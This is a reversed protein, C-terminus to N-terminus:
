DKEYKRALYDLVERALKFEEAVYEHWPNRTSVTEVVYLAEDPIWWVAYSDDAIEVDFLLKNREIM